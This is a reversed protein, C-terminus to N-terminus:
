VHWTCPPTTKQSSAHWKRKCPPGFANSRRPATPPAASGPWCGPRPAPRSALGSPTTTSPPPKTKLATADLSLVASARIAAASFRDPFCLETASPRLPIARIAAVTADGGWVVRCQAAASVARTIADDHPYTFLLVRGAVARGADDQTLTHQLVSLIFDFQASPKQSVRVWNVNGALLAILWSYMAVSDVNAPALHFVLGRGRLVADAPEHCAQALERLRAARFWHALAALEPYARIRPHTLLKQSFKAVFAVARPDFPAWASQAHSHALTQQLDAGPEAGLFFQIPSMPKM